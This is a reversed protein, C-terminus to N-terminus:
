KRRDNLKSIYPMFKIKVRQVTQNQQAQQAICDALSLAPDPPLSM